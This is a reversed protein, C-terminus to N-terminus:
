ESLGAPRHQAPRSSGLASQIAMAIDYQNCPKALRIMGLSTPDVPLEAYGTALIIPIGSYSEQISKALQLGTMAPMAHDTIVVDVNLDSALKALAEAGSHAEIPTHGLDEIMASIGTMVLHDDDVILIRCAGVQPAPIKMPAIVAAAQAPTEAKPLWLELVTGANPKSAIHLLGGSQAALGHVMSLGLGTGKGPGKTTFFPETAKALTMEDMGVGDDALTIRVYDGSKLLADPAEGTRASLSASITLTGGSPMADRANLAVNLLALELQNADVLAAPLGSQFATRLQV